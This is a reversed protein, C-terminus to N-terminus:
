YVDCVKQRVVFAAPMECLIDRTPICRCHDSPITRPLMLTHSTNDIYTRPTLRVRDYSKAFCEIKCRPINGLVVLRSLDM